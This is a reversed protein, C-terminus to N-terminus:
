NRFTVQLEWTQLNLRIAEIRAIARVIGSVIKKVDEKSLVSQAAESSLVTQAETLLEEEIAQKAIELDSSDPIRAIAEKASETASELQAIAEQKSVPEPIEPVELKEVASVTMTVESGGEVEITATESELVVPEPAVIQKATLAKAAEIITPLLCRVAAASVAIYQLGIPLTITILKATGMLKLASEIASAMVQFSTRPPVDVPTDMQITVIQKTTNSKLQVEGEASINIKLKAGKGLLPKLDKIAIGIEITGEPILGPFFPPEDGIAWISERGESIAIVKEQGVQICVTKDAEYLAEKPITFTITEEDKLPRELILTQTAILGDPAIATLCLLNGTVQVYIRDTATKGLKLLVKWEKASFEVSAIPNVSFSPIKHEDSTKFLEHKIGIVLRTTPDYCLDSGFSLGQDIEELIGKSGEGIWAEDGAEISVKLMTTVSAFEAFCKLKGFGDYSLVVKDSDSLLNSFQKISM